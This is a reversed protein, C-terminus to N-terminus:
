TFASMIVIVMLMGLLHLAMLGRCFSAALIGLIAVGFRGQVVILIMYIERWLLVFSCGCANALAERRQVRSGWSLRTCLVGTRSVRGAAYAGDSLLLVTCAVTCVRKLIELGSNPKMAFKGEPVVSLSSM